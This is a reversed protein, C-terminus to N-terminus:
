ALTSFRHITTQRYVEGPRLVTSPFAPRNPSDPYHQTELCFGSHQVYRRGGKGPETGDLYNGTYLQVAPETTLWELVRGTVPEEVRATRVPQTGGGGDIVYNHDYGTPTAGVQAMRSGLTAPRLFDWPTGAVSVLEGTPLSHNDVATFRSANLQLRHDLVTGEGRLNWYTHNTLNLVTPKDTRAEYDLRLENSETLTYIVQVELRGPYGEDGDPSVHTFRVAVGDAAPVEQAQWVAKDFGKLGGHLTCPGSNLALSYPRGDLIFKGGAIRNAYRGVICGMYPNGPRLWGELTDYGLTIDALQGTRDPTHLELLTAGRTMIRATIGTRSKLTFAQIDTGDPLTGYSSNVVTAM